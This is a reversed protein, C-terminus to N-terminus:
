LKYEKGTFVDVVTTGEGFAARMEYEKEASLKRQQKRYNEIAEAIEKEAVQKSLEYDFDFGLHNWFELIDSPPINNSAKWRVVGNEIITDTHFMDLTRESDKRFPHGSKYKLGDLYRNKM